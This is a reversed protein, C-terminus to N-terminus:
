DLIHRYMMIRLTCGIAIIPISQERFSEKPNMLVTEFSKGQMYSPVSGGALTLMTPGYDTNNIIAKTNTNANKQNAQKIIFPMRMSEEYMWRKDMYDHEGLMMGQDSTYIIITNDWLEEKKLYAFLRGLNDDVGKVCRLYRKTYEQFALHTLEDGSALTDFGYQRAYSRYPHRDSVSTGIRDRLSGHRGLTAESGFFPQAYLSAPEPIEINALYSEYREPYEFDDHPAKHHHMLFFPKSADRNELYDLTIDTIIDSVYGKHNVMNNPWEGQGKARFTPDFYKGQGPLVKYYDYSAPEDKLHWKGIMATKYGLKKMELPLFQREPPLHGDLDLVGNTQSYQGTMINARSPTCISNTCFANEFLIGEKAFADIM